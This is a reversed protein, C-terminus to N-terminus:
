DNTKRYMSDLLYMNIYDVYKGDRFIAETMVGEEVFGFKKYLNKAIINSDLVSLYARHMNLIDFVYRLCAGFMMSGYGQGQFDPSIDGGVMVSRNVYDINDLRISGIVIESDLSVVLRKSSSSLSVKEFWRDQEIENVFNIDTLKNLINWENHLHRLVEIDRKEMIRITIDKYKFM